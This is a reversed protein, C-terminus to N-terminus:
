LQFNIPIIVWVATATDGQMNPKFLWGGKVTKVAANDLSAHGSSKQVQVVDPKGSPLIRVKLLVKGAWGREQADEPYDPPPNRLYDASSLQVVKEVPPAPPAPAAQVPAPPANDSIPVNPVPPTEVAPPPIKKPKPKPKPPIADKPPTPRPQVVPPPPPPPPPALLTVEIKTEKPPPEVVAPPHKFRDIVTAHVFVTLAAVVLADIWKRDNQSPDLKFVGLSGEADVTPGLAPVLEEDFSKFPIVPALTKKVAEHQWQDTEQPSVSLNRM